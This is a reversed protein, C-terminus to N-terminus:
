SLALAQRQYFRCYYVIEVDVIVTTNSTRDIPQALVYWYWVNTPNAATNHSFNDDNPNVEGFIKKTSLYKSLTIPRTNSNGMMAYVAYPNAKGDEIASWSPAELTPIIAIDHQSTANTSGTSIAKIKIKSGNVEVKQYLASLEDYGLPQGGTGTQDPDYCSNGRFINTAFAGAAPSLTIRQMYRLKCIYEDPAVNVGRLLLATPKNASRRVLMSQKNRKLFRKGPMKPGYKRPRGRPM